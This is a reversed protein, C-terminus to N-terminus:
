KYSKIADYVENVIAWRSRHEMKLVPCHSFPSAVFIYNNDRGRKIMGYRLVIRYKLRMPIEKSM